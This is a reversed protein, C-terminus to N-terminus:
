SAAARGPGREGADDGLQSLKSLTATTQCPKRSDLLWCTSELRSQHVPALQQTEEAVRSSPFTVQLKEAITM